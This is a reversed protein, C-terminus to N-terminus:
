KSETSDQNVEGTTIRSDKIRGGRLQVDGSAATESSGTGSGKVTVKGTEITVGQHRGGQMRISGSKVRGSAGTSSAQHARAESVLWAIVGIVYIILLGTFFLRFREMTMSAAGFLVITLGFAFLLVPRDKLGDIVEKVASWLSAKSGQDTRREDPM